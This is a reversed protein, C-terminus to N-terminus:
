KILRDFKERWEGQLKSTRVPDVIFLREIDEPKIYLESYKNQPLKVTRNTPTYLNAEAFAEQVKPSLVFDVFKAAMDPNPTTKVINITTILPFTGEAPRAIHVDAAGQDLVDKMRGTSLMGLWAEGSQFLSVLQSEVEIMGIANGGKVLEALRELGPEIKDIGGGAQQAEMITLGLVSPSSFYPLAVRGKYKPDWLVDWSTPVGDVKSSNYILSYDGVNIWITQASARAVDYLDKMNPIKAEDLDLWLGEVEGAAAYIQNNTVVDVQGMRAKVTFDLTAGVVWEVKCNNEKEFDGVVLEYTRQYSGGWTTVRLVCDQAYTHSVSAVLLGIVTYLVEKKM